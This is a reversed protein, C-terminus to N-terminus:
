GSPMAAFGAVPSMKTAVNSKPGFAFLSIRKAIVDGAALAIAGAALAALLPRNM